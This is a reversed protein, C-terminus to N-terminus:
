ELATEIGQRPELRYLPGIWVVRTSRLLAVSPNNIYIPRRGLEKLILQNMEEGRILFRNIATVDPRQGEVLQLYQVVPITDWWGFIMANPEVLALVEEGQKRASYDGSLDVRGWNWGMALVVFALMVARVLYVSGTFAGRQVWDLLYQYGYGLWLAWILFIPLYMTEKDVVRYNVFFVVNAAFFLGLLGGIKWFRRFLVLLGLVAPAIGVAFFAAWLQKGFAMFQGPLDSIAYGFMQGSFARGTILWLLGDMTQLDVPLFSGSADYQGAYNFAPEAAFRAPLTLFVTSGLLAAAFGAFVTSRRLAQRHNTALVFWACGPLLLITAAHNGMSLAAVLVVLGFQFPAPRDAWRLLLWILGAMLATHLTYVEAVLSLSWFYPATALLGLAGIRAWQRVGLHRLIGDALFITLAGWFASFLNMRYGLDGIPLISWVKGLLLYLPYGTARLIGGTAVATTLEASDLNYITPALTRTYLFFPALFAGLRTWPVWALSARLRYPHVRLKSTLQSQM